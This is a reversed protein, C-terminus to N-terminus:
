GRVGVTLVTETSAVVAEAFTCGVGDQYLAPSAEQPGTLRTRKIRMARATMAGSGALGTGREVIVAIICKAPIVDTQIKVSNADDISRRSGSGPYRDLRANLALPLPRRVTQLDGM